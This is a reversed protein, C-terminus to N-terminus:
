AASRAAFTSRFISRRSQIRRQQSSGLWRPIISVLTPVSPKAPSPCLNLISADEDVILGGWPEMGFGEDDIM